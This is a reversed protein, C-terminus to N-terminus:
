RPGRHNPSGGEPDNFEGDRRSPRQSDDPDSPLPEEEDYDDSRSAGAEPDTKRPQRVPPKARKIKVAKPQPKTKPKAKPARPEGGGKVQFAVAGEDLVAAVRGGARRLNQAFLNASFSGM